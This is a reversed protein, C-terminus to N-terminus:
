GLGGFPGEVTSGAGSKERPQDSMIGVDAQESSAQKIDAQVEEKISKLQDLGARIEAMNGRTIESAAKYVEGYSALNEIARQIDEGFSGTDMAARVVEKQAIRNTDENMRLLAMKGMQASENLAAMNVGQLIVNLQEAASAVGRTNMSRVMETQNHVSEVGTNIQIAGRTLEAATEGVERKKAALLKVHEEAAMKADERQMKAISSENEAPSEFAKRKEQTLVEAEGVADDLIAAVHGMDRNATKLRDFQKEMEGLHERGAGTRERFTQLLTLTKQVMDQQRQQHEESSIDLLQALKAKADALEPTLATNSTSEADLAVIEAEIRAMEALATDILQQNSAINQRASQKIGGFGFLAKEESLIAIESQMRQVRNDHDHFQRELEARRMSRQEAAVKDAKIERYADATANNTRLTYIADLKETFPRMQENWEDLERNLDDYIQKLEGMVEVDTLRILEEQMELRKAQMYEMFADFEKFAAKTEDRTSAFTITKAIASKKEEPQYQPSSLVQAVANDTISVKAQPRSSAMRKRLAEPIIQEKQAQRPASAIM